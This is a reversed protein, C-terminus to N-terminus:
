PEDREEAAGDSGSRAGKRVRAYGRKSHSSLFEFWVELFPNGKRAELWALVEDKPKRRVCFMRYAEELEKIGERPLGSRRIGIRNLGFLADDKGAITFPLADRTVRSMAAAMVMSGVRVTQHVGVGAGINARDQLTVHGGAMAENAMIVHDGVRCDHAIHTGAMFFNNNGVITENTAQSGRHVTMNEGFYNGNGVLLVTSEGKYGLDQAEGGLSSGRMLRNGDGMRVFGFVYAMGSIENEMGLVAGDEIVAYPGVKCGEGMQVDKGIYATPHIDIGM